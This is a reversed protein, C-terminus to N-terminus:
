FFAARSRGASKADHPTRAQSEYLFATYDRPTSLYSFGRPRRTPFVLFGLKGWFGLCQAFSASSCFHGAALDICRHVPSILSFLIRARERHARFLIMVCARERTAFCM